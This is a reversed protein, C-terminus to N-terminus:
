ASCCLCPSFVLTVDACVVRCPATNNRTLLKSSKEQLEQFKNVFVYKNTPFPSSPYNNVQLAYHFVLNTDFHM